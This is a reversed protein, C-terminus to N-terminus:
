QLGTKSSASKMAVMAAAGLALIVFGIGWVFWALPAIWSSLSPLTSLATGLWPLVTTAMSEVIAVLDPPFWTGLWGPLSMREMEQATGALNGVSNLSWVALSQFLWISFSWIALLTLVLFWAISYLM